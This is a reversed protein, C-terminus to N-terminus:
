PPPHQANHQGIRQKRDDMMAAIETLYAHHGPDPLQPVRSSWPGQPQPLLSHM